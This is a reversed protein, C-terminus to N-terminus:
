ACLMGTPDLVYIGFNRSPACCKPLISSVPGSKRSCLLIETHDSIWIKQFKCKTENHDLVCIVSNRSRAFCEPLIWFVIELIEPIRVANRYARFFQDLNEPVSCFKQIILHDPMENGSNRSRASEKTIIHDLCLKWFKPFTCQIENHDV